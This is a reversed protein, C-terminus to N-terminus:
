AVFTEIMTLLKSLLDEPFTGYELTCTVENIIKPPIKVNFLQNYANVDKSTLVEIISDVSTTRVSLESIFVFSQILYLTGESKTVVFTHIPLDGNVEFIYFNYEDNLLIDRIDEIQQCTGAIKPEFLSTLYEVTHSCDTTSFIKKNYFIGLASSVQNLLEFFKENDTLGELNQIYDYSEILSEKIEDLRIVPNIYHGFKLEEEM